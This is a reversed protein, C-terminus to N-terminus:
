YPFDIGDALQQCVPCAPGTYDPSQDCTCTSDQLRHAKELEIQRALRQYRAKYNTVPLAAVWESFQLQGVIKRLEHEAETCWIRWYLSDTEPVNMDPATPTAPTEPGLLIAYQTEPFHGRRM